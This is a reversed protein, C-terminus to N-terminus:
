KAYVGKGVELYFKAEGAGNAAPPPRLKTRLQFIPVRTSNDVFVITGGKEQVDLKVTKKIYDFHEKTIEKVGSKTIDVVDAYDSGFISKELFSFAKASITSKNAKIMAKLEDFMAEIMKFKHKKQEPTRATEALVKYKDVDKWKLGLAAALDKMGVYPSLNAVTVSESKLSFSLNEKLILNSGTKGTVAYIKVEIDGKIDGGSSEGAIGDAIVEFKVKEGVNNKLFKNIAADVKKRWSANEISKILQDIKKDIDAIEKSNAYVPNTMDKGFAGTVSAPKLRVELLVDFFDPPKKEFQKKINKAIVLKVRGSSFMSPEIKARFSNLKAKEIKGYAAYLGLGISFIGEIVDGQNLKGM